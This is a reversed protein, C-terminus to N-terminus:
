LSHVAVCSMRCNMFYSLLIRSKYIFEKGQSDNHQYKESFPSSGDRQTRDSAVDSDDGRDILTEGNFCIGGRSEERPGLREFLKSRLSAELLMSNQNGLTQELNEMQHGLDGETSEHDVPFSEDDPLIIADNAPSCLRSATQKNSCPLGDSTSADLDSCPESGLNQGSRSRPLPHSGGYENNYRHNSELQTHQSIDTKTALDINETNSNLFHFGSEPHEHHVSPWLLRSDRVILSGYHASLIERKTYLEACRANAEILSRQAKRYVKLANREEIECLRKCEQAEELERDLTEELNTLSVMDLQSHGPATTNGPINWLGSSNM